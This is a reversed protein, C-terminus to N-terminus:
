KPYYKELLRILLIKRLETLNKLLIQMKERASRRGESSKQKLYPLLIQEIFIKEREAFNVYMRLHRPEIGFAQLNSFIQAVKLDYQSFEPGELTQDPTFIGYTVMEKIIEDSLGTAERFKEQNLGQLEEVETEEEIQSFLSKISDKQSSLKEKIVALPMFREKQLRLIMRLEEVDQESFMRYGSSSRKPKILGQSEWFRIKSPTLDPFEAKLLKVVQNVKLLNPALTKKAM